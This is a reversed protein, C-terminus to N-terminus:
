IELMYLIKIINIKNMM